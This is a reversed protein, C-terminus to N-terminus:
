RGLLERYINWTERVAKDWTFTHARALGRAALTNRLDEDGALRGLAHAMAEADTPDVLLAADGAVEPLASRDSTLVAAGAAMAELVPMGFGEDLSPFAFISARAYWTALEEPSVYGLLKIRSRAPSAEIRSGIEEGGFGLSGALALTWSNDLSEFAGVLRAINKRKQVAGASFVIRERQLRPYDLARVGHRVVRIKGAPASLL